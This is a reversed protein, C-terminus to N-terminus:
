AHNTPRVSQDRSNLRPDRVTQPDTLAYLYGEAQQQGSGATQIDLRWINCWRMIPGQTLVIDTVRDLPIAKRKLFYVGQDIRLTTGELRYSLAHAQRRPLWTGFFVAYVIAVVLGLGWIWIGALLVIAVFSRFFYQAVKDRNIEFELKGHMTNSTSEANM